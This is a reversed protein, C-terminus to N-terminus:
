NVVCVFGLVFTKDYVNTCFNWVKAERYRMMNYMKIYEEAIDKAQKASCM